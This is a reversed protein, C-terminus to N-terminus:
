SKLKRKNRSVTNHRDVSWIAYHVAVGAAVFPVLPLFLVAGIIALATYGGTWNAFLPYPPYEEISAPGILEPEDTRIGEDWGLVFPTGCQSCKYTQGIKSRVVSFRASCGPCATAIKESDM